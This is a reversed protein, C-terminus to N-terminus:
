WFPEVANRLRVLSRRISLAPSIENGPIYSVSYCPLATRAQPLRLRRKLGKDGVCSELGGGVPPRGSGPLLRLVGCTCTSRGSRGSASTWFSLRARKTLKAAPWHAM